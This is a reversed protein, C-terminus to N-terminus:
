KGCTHEKYMITIGRESDSYAWGDGNSYHYDIIEINQNACWETADKSAKDIYGRFGKFKYPCSCEKNDTSIACSNLVLLLSVV